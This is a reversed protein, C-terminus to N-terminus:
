VSGNNLCNFINFNSSMIRISCPLSAYLIFFWSIGVGIRSSKSVNPFFDLHYLVLSLCRGFMLLCLLLKYLLLKKHLLM